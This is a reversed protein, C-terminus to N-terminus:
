WGADGAICRVNPFADRMSETQVALASDAL